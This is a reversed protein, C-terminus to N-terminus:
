LDGKMWKVTDELTERLPRPSYGWAKQAKEHSVHAKEQLIDISGKTFLAPKGTMLSWAETVLASARALWLPVTPGPAKLHAISSLMSFIEQMSHFHGAALYVEGSKGKERAQAVAQAVDRVDVFDFGGKIGAPIQGALYKQILTTFLGGRADWPGVIGTPCVVVVDLNEQSAAELALRTADAKSEGYDMVANGKAFGVDEQIPRINARMNLAEISSIYVLRKVKADRCAQIVHRTGEVNTQWLGEKKGRRIDILAASHIVTDCGKFAQTLAEQDDLVAEAIEACLGQVLAHNSTPRLIVRIKENQSSYHRLLAQGLHGTSGTIAIM